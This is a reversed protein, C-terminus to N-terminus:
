RVKYYGIDQECIYVTPDGWSKDGMRFGLYVILICFRFVDPASGSFGVCLWM